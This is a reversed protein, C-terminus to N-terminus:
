APRPIVPTNVTAFYCEGNRIVRPHLAGDFASKM